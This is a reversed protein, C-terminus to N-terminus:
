NNNKPNDFYRDVMRVDINPSGALIDSSGRKKIEDLAQIKDEIQEMKEQVQEGNAPTRDVKLSLLESIEQM